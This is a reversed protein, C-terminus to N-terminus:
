ADDHRDKYEDREPRREPDRQPLDDSTAVVHLQREGGVPREDDNEDPDTHDRRSLTRDGLTRYRRGSM